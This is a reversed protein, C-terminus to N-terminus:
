NKRIMIFKEDNRRNEEISSSKLEITNESKRIYTVKITPSNEIGKFRIKKASRKVLVLNNPIVVKQGEITDVYFIKNHKCVIAMEASYMTDAGIAMFSLGKLMEDNNKEWIETFIIGDIENEWTGQLWEMKKLKKQPNGISATFSCAEAFILIILSFVLIKIKNLMIQIKKQM